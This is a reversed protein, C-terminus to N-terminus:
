QKTLNPIILKLFPTYQQNLTLGEEAKLEGSFANNARDAERTSWELAVRFRYGVGDIRRLVGDPYKIELELIPGQTLTGIWVPLDGRCRYAFLDRQPMPGLDSNM